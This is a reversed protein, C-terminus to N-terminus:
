HRFSYLKPECLQFKTVAFGILCIKRLKKYKTLSYELIHQKRDKKALLLPLIFNIFTSQRFGYNRETHHSVFFVVQGSFCKM